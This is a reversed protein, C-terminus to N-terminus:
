QKYELYNPIQQFQLKEECHDLIDVLSIKGDMHIIQCKRLLTNEQGAEFLHCGMFLGRHMMKGGDM